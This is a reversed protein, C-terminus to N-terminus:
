KSEEANDDVFVDEIDELTSTVVSNAAKKTYIDITPRAITKVAAIGEDDVGVTKLGKAMFGEVADSANSSIGNAVYSGYNNVKGKIDYTTPQNSQGLFIEGAATKAGSKIAGDLMRGTANVLVNSDGSNFVPSVTAKYFANFGETMATAGLAQGYTVDEGSRYNTELSNGFDSLQQLANSADPSVIKVVSPIFKKGAASAGTYTALIGTDHRDGAESGKQLMATFALQRYESTSPVKSPAVCDVLGDLFYENGDVFGSAGAYIYDIVVDPPDSGNHMRAYADSAEQYGKRRNVTAEFSDYYNVLDEATGTRAIYELTALEENTLYDLRDSTYRGHDDLISLATSPKGDFTGQFTKFGDSQYYHDFRVKGKLESLGKIAVGANVMDNYNQEFLDTATEFLSYSSNILSMLDTCPFTPRSWDDDYDTEGPIAGDERMRLWFQDEASWNPDTYWEDSHQFRDAAKYINLMGSDEWNKEGSLYSNVSEIFNLDRMRELWEMMLFGKNRQIEPTKDGTPDM